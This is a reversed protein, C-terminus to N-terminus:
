GGATQAAPTRGRGPHEDLLAFAEDLRIVDAYKADM